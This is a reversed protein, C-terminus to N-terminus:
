DAGAVQGWLHMRMVPSMWNEAGSLSPPLDVTLKLSNNKVVAPVIPSPPDIKLNPLIDVSFIPYTYNKLQEGWQSRHKLIKGSSNVFGLETKYNTAQVWKRAGELTKKLDGSAPAPSVDIPYIYLTAPPAGLRGSVEIKLPKLDAPGKDGERVAVASIIHHYNYIYIYDINFAKLTAAVLTAYESCDGIKVRLFDGPLVVSADPAYLKKYRFKGERLADVTAKYLAKEKSMGKGMNKQLKLKIVSLWKKSLKGNDLRTACALSGEKGRSVFIAGKSYSLKKLENTLVRTNSCTKQKSEPSSQFGSQLINAASILTNIEM